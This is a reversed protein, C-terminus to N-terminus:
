ARDTFDARPDRRRLEEGPTLKPIPPLDAGRRAEAARTARAAVQRLLLANAFRPIAIQARERCRLGFVLGARKVGCESEDVDGFGSREVFELAGM